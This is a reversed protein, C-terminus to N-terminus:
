TERSWGQEAEGPAHHHLLSRRGKLPDVPPDDRDHLAALGLPPPTLVHPLGPRLTEQM